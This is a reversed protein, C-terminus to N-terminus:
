NYYAEEHWSCKGSNPFLAKIKDEIDKKNQKMTKDEDFSRPDLGIYIGEFGQGGTSWELDIFEFSAEALEYFGYDSEEDEPDFDTDKANNKLIDMAVETFDEEEMHVGYLIFSSSSSNSVFGSRIKM